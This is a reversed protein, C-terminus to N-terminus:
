KHTTSMCTTSAVVIRIAIFGRARAVNRSTLAIRLSLRYSLMSSLYRRCGGGDTNSLYRGYDLLVAEGIVLWIFLLRRKGLRSDCILNRITFSQRGRRRRRRGLDWTRRCATYTRWKRRSLARKPATSRWRM